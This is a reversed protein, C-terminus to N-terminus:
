SGGPVLDERGTVAAMDPLHTAAANIQLENVVTTVGPIGRAVEMAAAGVEASRINGRLHVEGLRPYVGIRQGTTRTDHALALSVSAAVENDPYLENHLEDLGNVNQLLDDILRRNVDSAVNGRLWVVGDIVYIRVGPLDVRLRPYDYLRDYIEQRLEKDSRYPTLQASRKGDLHVGVQKAALATIQGANVLSERGMREVVLHRLAHTETNITLQELHGLAKGDANVTTAHSLEPGAAKTSQQQIEELPVSVSLMTDDGEALLHAPVYYVKGFLMGTRVGAHTIVFRGPDAVVSVLKGAPGDSAQVEADFRLKVVSAYETPTLQM